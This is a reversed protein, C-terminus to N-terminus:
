KSRTVKRVLHPFAKEIAPNPYLSLIYQFPTMGDHTRMFEAMAKRDYRAQDTMRELFADSWRTAPPDPERKM